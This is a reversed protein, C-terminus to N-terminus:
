RRARAEKGLLRAQESKLEVFRREVYERLTQSPFNLLPQHQSYDQSQWRKLLPKYSAVHAALHLFSEPMSSDEILDANGLVIQEMRLNLPMFVESMWLRWAALEEETPPEGEGFFHKQPRYRRRFASWAASASQETILLPGYLNKLQNNIRELRDKRRASALNNFYTAAIGIFALTIPILLPLLTRLDM